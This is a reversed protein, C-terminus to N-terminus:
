QGTGEVYAGILGGLALAHVTCFPNGKVAWKACDECSKMADLTNATETLTARLRRVEAAADECLVKADHGLRGPKDLRALLNDASM